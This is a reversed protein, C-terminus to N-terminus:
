PGHADHKREGNEEISDTRAGSAAGCDFHYVLRAV